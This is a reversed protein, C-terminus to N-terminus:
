MVKRAKAVNDVGFVAVAERAGLGVSGYVFQINVGARELKAAAKAMAGPKNPLEALIVSAEVCGVKMAKVVKRAAVTKDVVMRVIGQETTEVVSIARVNVRAAALRACLAALQGPKNPLMVSLQKGIKM